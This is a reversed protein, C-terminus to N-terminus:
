NKNKLAKKIVENISLEPENHLLNTIRNHADSRTIGLSVLASIADKVITIDINASAKTTINKPSLDLDNVIIKDKLETIIREALKKGVGPIKIFSQTDQSYLATQLETSTLESLVTLAMRSGVGKVSQLTIFTSKDELSSFGYLKIHDERVHTEIFLETYEELTVNSLIKRSCFVMYGVGNIDIILHDDFISDIKGKLKGIM